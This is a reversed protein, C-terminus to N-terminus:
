ISPNVTVDVTTEIEGWTYTVKVPIRLMFSESVNAGNNQYRIYGFKKSLGDYQEQGWTPTTESKYSIALGTETVITPNKIDGTCHFLAIKDTKESLKTEGLKGGNLNTTVNKVDVFFNSIGYYKFYWLNSFDPTVFRGAEGRWDTFEFVDFVNLNAEPKYADVGDVYVKGTVATLNLPRLFYYPNVESQLAVVSNCNEGAKLVVGINAYLEAATKPVSPSYNLLEKALTDNVYTLEGNDQNITAIVKGNAYLNTNAYVGKTYDATLAIEAESLKSNDKIQTSSKDDYLDYVVDSDVTLQYKGVKPQIPAFYYKYEPSEVAKGAVTFKPENGEWVQNIPTVWTAPVPKGPEANPVKVNLIAKSQNDFWYASLKVGVTGAANKTVTVKVPVYVGEFETDAANHRAFIYRVWVIASGGNKYIASKQEPTVTIVLRSPTSGNEAVTFAGAKTAKTFKNNAFTYQVASSDAAVELKYYTDFAAEDVADVKAYVNAQMKDAVTSDVYDACDVAVTAFAFEDAKIYDTPLIHVKVFGVLVINNNADKVAVRILPQRDISSTNTEGDAKGNEDVGCPTLVGDKLTAFQSDSLKDGNLYYDVLTYEYTLGFDNEPYDTEYVGQKGGNSTESAISYHTQFFKNFDQSKKYDVTLTAKNKLAEEATAYLHSNLDLDCAAAKYSSQAFALGEFALTSRFIMAYDSTVTTDKEGNKVDAQLAFLEVTERTTNVLTMPLSNVTMNVFLNGNEVKKFKAEVAAGAKTSISEATRTLFALKTTSDVIASSPNMEYEVTVAPFISSGGRVTEYSAGVVTYTTDDSVKVTEKEDASFKYADVNAYTYEAAEIGDVYLSPVFVLSRLETNFVGWLASIKANLSNELATVAASVKQIEANLPKYIDEYVKGGEECAKALAADFTKDFDAINLKVQDLRQTEKTLDADATELAQIKAELKGKEAYVGLADILTNVKGLAETATKQANGAATQATAIKAVIESIKLDSDYKENLTKIQGEATTLRTGLKAIETNAAAMQEKTAFTANVYDLTAYSPLKDEIAKVRNTLATVDGKLGDITNNIANVDADHKSQLDSIKKEIESKLSADAAKYAEELKKIDADHKSKLDSVSKELAAIAAEAKAKAEELATISKKNNEVQEKVTALEKNLEDVRSNTKDIDESYDTCSTYAFTLGAVALM